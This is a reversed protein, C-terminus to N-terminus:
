PISNLNGEEIYEIDWDGYFPKNILSTSNSFIFLSLGVLFVLGSLCGGAAVSDDSPPFLSSFSALLAIFFGLGSVLMLSLGLWKKGRKGKVRINEIRNKPIVEEINSSTQLVLAEETIAKLTGERKTIFNNSKKYYVKVKEGKSLSRQRNRLKHRFWWTALGSTATSKFKKEQRAKKIEANLPDKKGSPSIIKDIVLLNTSQQSNPMDCNRYYLQGSAVSDIIVKTKRGTVLKLTHCDITQQALTSCAFFFAFFLPLGTKMLITKM